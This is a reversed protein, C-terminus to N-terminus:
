TKSFFFPMKINVIFTTVRMYIYVISALNYTGKLANILTSKHWSSKARYFKVVKVRRQM